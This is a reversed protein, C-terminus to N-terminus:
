SMIRPGPGICADSDVRGFQCARRLLTLLIRYM